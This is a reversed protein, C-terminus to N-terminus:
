APVEAALEAARRAAASAVPRDVPTRGAARRTGRRRELRLTRMYDDYDAQITHRKSAVYRKEIGRRHAAIEKRMSSASPLRYVGQLHDAILESQREAIPMIAGLPQILGVFYLGPVTTHFVRRYLEVENDGSPDLFDRDFFPFSIKYGTCFVVLDAEVRSGDTFVVHDGDFRDINPKPTIAGHALRDLIRSSMTPHAQAFRHDPAPLGYREMPGTAAAMLRRAIPWRVSGPLWESGGIQDYPRGWVYKPVVHVGRRASLYTEDSHYSADVAIDMASNGMGVVVVKRGLLQEEATYAHSHMVTGTFTDLGPFMPEPLRQDWHHGNAVLVADYLPREGTSLTVEFTGDRRPEVHDVGTRFRIHERLGFRDAYADFYAAVQDHRAFDPLDGPMPFDSFEMRRRSTNIHLSRYAASVGNSNRWVWNGGVRDSLEFCEVDIGREALVKVAAIGASGAGIVCVRYSNDNM